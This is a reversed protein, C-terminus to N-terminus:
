GDRGEEVRVIRVVARGHRTVFVDAGEGAADLVEALRRRFERVSVRIPARKEDSVIGDIRATYVIL